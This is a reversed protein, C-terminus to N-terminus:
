ELQRIRLHSIWKSITQPVRQTGMIRPSINTLRGSDMLIPMLLSMPRILLTHKKWCTSSYPSSASDDELFPFMGGMLSCMDRLKEEGGNRFRFDKPIIPIVGEQFLVSSEKPTVAGWPRDISNLRSQSIRRRLEKREPFVLPIELHPSTASLSIQILQKMRHSSCSSKEARFM